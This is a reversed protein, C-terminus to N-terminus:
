ECSNFEESINCLRENGARYCEDCGQTYGNKHGQFYGDENGQFYGDKVGLRLIQPSYYTFINAINNFTNEDNPFVEALKEFANKYINKLAEKNDTPIHLDQMKKDVMAQQDQSLNPMGKVANLLSLSILLVTKISFLMFKIGFDLM